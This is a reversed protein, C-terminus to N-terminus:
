NQLIPDVIRKFDVFPSGRQLWKAGDYLEFPPEDNAGLSNNARYHYDFTGHGWNYNLRNMANHFSEPAVIYLPIGGEKAREYWLSQWTQRDQLLLSTALLLKTGDFLSEDPTLFQLVAKLDGNKTSFLDPLSMAFKNTRIALALQDPDVKLPDMGIEVQNPIKELVGQAFLVSSTFGTLVVSRREKSIKSLLRTKESLSTVSPLYRYFEDVPIVLPSIGREQFAGAVYAACLKEKEPDHNLSSSSYGVGRYSDGWTIPKLLRDLEPISRSTDVQGVERVFKHSSYQMDGLTLIEPFSIERENTM